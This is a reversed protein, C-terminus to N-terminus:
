NCYYGYLNNDQKSLRMTEEAEVGNMTVSIATREIALRIDKGEPPSVKLM